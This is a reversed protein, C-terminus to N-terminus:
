NGGPKLVSQPSLIINARTPNSLKPLTVRRGGEDADAPGFSSLTNKINSVVSHGITGRPEPQIDIDGGELDAKLEQEEKAVLADLRAIEADTPEDYQRSKFISPAGKKTMRGLEAETAFKANQPMASTFSDGKNPNGLKAIPMVPLIGPTSFAQLEEETLKINSTGATAVLGLGNVILAPSDETAPRLVQKVTNQPTAPTPITPKHQTFAFDPSISDSVVETASQPADINQPPAQALKGSRNIKDTMEEEIVIPAHLTLGLSEVFYAQILKQLQDSTLPLKLAHSVELFQLVGITDAIELAAGCSPCEGKQMANKLESALKYSCSPCKIFFKM